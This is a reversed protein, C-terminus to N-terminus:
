RVPRLWEHRCPGMRRRLGDMFGAAFARVKAIRQKELTAMLLLGLLLRAMRRLCWDPERRWYDRVTVITNRAIYYKRLPPHSPLTGLLPLWVGGKEGVSHAMAPKRSIVVRHGHARMRLCFEHDVQDIFYDERFGGAAHALNVDILSGSTIVTKRELCEVENDPRIKNGQSQADFYNAGIVAPRPTCDDRVRLLTEVMDPYCRTDQDLTLLWRCGSQMAQELGRNLASAIGLNFRNEIVRVRGTHQARISFKRLRDGDATNDVVALTEVQPIITGFLEDLGDTPFYTVVVACVGNRPPPPADATGHGVSALLEAKRNM